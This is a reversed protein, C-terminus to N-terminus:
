FLNYCPHAKMAAYTAFGCACLSRTQQSLATGSTRHRPVMSSSEHTKDAVGFVMWAFDMERLNAENSLASFYRGLDDIDFSEKAEKLELDENESKQLLGEIIQVNSDM